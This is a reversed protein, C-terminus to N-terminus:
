HSVLLGTSQHSPAHNSSSNSTIKTSKLEENGLRISTEEMVPSPPLPDKKKLMEEGSSSDEEDDDGFFLNWM